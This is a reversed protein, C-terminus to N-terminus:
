SRVQGKGRIIYKSGTMEEIGMPGRPYVRDTNIGSAPGIGFPLGDTLRTSANWYTAASDILALFREAVAADETVIADALGSHHRRIHSIAENFNGVVKLSLILDLYETDWDEETAPLWEPVIARAKEDARVEVGAEALREALAPLVAAAAAEDVLATEASNCTSPRNAKANEIIDIAMRTDASQEVYIHCLGRYHKMVPIRSKETVAEILRHSGRAIILDILGALGLLEDVAARDTTEIFQIAGPPMGARTGAESMLRALVRNSHIAETGGRLIICNGAKICLGATDTTVNPRAEYVIGIVGIPTRVRSMGMGNAATWESIVTGVPDDLAAVDRLNSAMLEVRGRDLLLRDLMAPSLGKAKGAGLDKANAEEIEALGTELADAMALLAANKAETPLVALEHSAIRAAEAKEKISTMNEGNPPQEQHNRTM